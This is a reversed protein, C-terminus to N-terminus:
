GLIQRPIELTEIGDDDYLEYRVGDPIEVIVLEANVGGAKEKLEEVVQILIPDSRNEPRSDLAISDYVENYAILEETSNWDKSLYDNPNSVSFTSFFSRGELEEAGVPTYGECNYNFFYCEKNKLEAMRKIAAASLSFGGYCKNLVIKM